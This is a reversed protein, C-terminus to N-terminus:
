LCIRNDSTWQNMGKRTSPNCSSIPVPLSFSPKPRSLAIRGIESLVSRSLASWLSRARRSLVGDWGNPTRPMAVPHKDAKAGLRDNQCVVSHGVDVFVVRGDAAGGRRAAVREMTSDRRWAARATDRARHWPRMRRREELRATRGRARSFTRDLRRGAGRACASALAM